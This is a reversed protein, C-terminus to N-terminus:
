DLVNFLDQNIVNDEQIINDLLFKQQMIIDLQYMYLDVKNIKTNVM